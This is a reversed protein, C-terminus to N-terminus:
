FSLIIDHKALEIACEQSSIRTINKSAMSLISDTVLYQKQIDYLPFAASLANINKIGKPPNHNSILQNIGPGMYFISVNQEFTAFALAEEIAERAAFSSYPAKTFIYAINKKM